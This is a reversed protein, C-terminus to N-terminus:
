EEVELKFIIDRWPDNVRFWTDTFEGWYDDYHRRYKKSNIRRLAEKESIEYQCGIVSNYRYYKTM